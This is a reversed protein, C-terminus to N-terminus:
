YGKAFDVKCRLPQHAMFRLYNDQFIDFVQEPFSEAAIHPTVTIKKHKWFLHDQALPEQNFVDLFAHQVSNKELADLLGHECVANGRGVNFLLVNNCHALTGANLLQDTNLTAPLTSVVITAMALTETLKSLSYVQDFATIDCIGSRNVGIVKIGLASAVQALHSGISGTGLIVMTQSTLSRYPQPQWVGVQQQAHYLSFHRTLNLTLGIVYEAILQGFHGRINTLEYDQRLEPKILADIGAFTSQLWRLAPYSDLQRAIKPPDALIISAQKPDDTIVLRPLQAQKILQHYTAQQRSVILVKNM